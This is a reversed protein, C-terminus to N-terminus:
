HGGETEFDSEKVTRGSPDPTFSGDANRHGYKGTVNNFTSGELFAGCYECCKKVPANERGCKSCKM